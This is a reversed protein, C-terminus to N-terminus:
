RYGHHPGNNYQGNNHPGNGYHGNNHHGNNHYGNNYHGNNHHGNNHHGNYHNGHPRPKPRKLFQDGCCLRIAEKQLFKKMRKWIGNGAKGMNINPLDRSQSTSPEKAAEFVREEPKSVDEPTDKLPVDALVGDQANETPGAAGPKTDQALQIEPKSQQASDSAMEPNTRYSKCKSHSQDTYVRKDLIISYKRDEFSGPCWFLAYLLGGLCPLEPCKYTSQAQRFLENQAAQPHPCLDELEYCIFLINM